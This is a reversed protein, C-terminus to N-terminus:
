SGNDALAELNDRIVDDINAVYDLWSWNHGKASALESVNIAVGQLLADTFEKKSASYNNNLWYKLKCSKFGVAYWKYDTSGDSLTEHVNMIRLKDLGLGRLTNLYELMSKPLHERPNYTIYFGFKRLEQLIHETDLEFAPRTAANSNGLGTICTGQASLIESFLVGYQPHEVSIRFGTLWPHAKIEAVHIRLNRDNNSLCQTLQLWSSVKYRLPQNSNIM